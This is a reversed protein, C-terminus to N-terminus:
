GKYTTPDWPCMVKYCKGFDLREMDDESLERVKEIAEYNEMIRKPSKSGALSIVGQQYGWRLLIQATTCQHKDAIDILLPDSLMKALTLSASGMIKMDHDQCYQQIEPRKLWPHYELQNVVPLIRLKDWEFLEQLHRVGYNSVGISKVLGQDVSEQLAQYTELRKRKNSLPSNILFLDIYNLGEARKLSSEIALKTKDFGQETHWIKTVYNIESREVEPHDNLFNLIGQTTETENNYYRGTDILRYGTLLAQTVLHTAQSPPINHLGYGQVPISIGNNLVYNRARSVAGSSISRKFSM